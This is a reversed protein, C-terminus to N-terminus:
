YYAPPNVAKAMLEVLWNIGFVPLGSLEHVMKAYPGFNTCEFVIAGTDPHERMHRVTMERMCEELVELDAQTGDEIFVKAFPTNEQMGTVVVNMDGTTFGLATFHEETLNKKRQTFVAVKKKPGVAQHALPIALLGSTFVPINVAEALQPQFPALFGCSTTIAKCGEAELERAAEIFPVLLEPDPEDGMIRVPKAGKVVKYKVPIGAYTLANGIDGPIRPFRTDLMLIGIDQGYNTYGGYLRM